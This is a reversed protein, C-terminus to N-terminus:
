YELLCDAEEIIKALDIATRPTDSSPKFVITNGCVLAPAIKWAPIAMPFNVAHHTWGGWPDAYRSHWKHKLESPTTHGFLRRGEGAM